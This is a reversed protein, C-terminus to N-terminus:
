GVDAGYGYGYGYYSENKDASHTVVIGAVNVQNQELQTIAKDLQSKTTKGLRVMLVAIDASRALVMADSVALVPPCDVVVVDWNQSLKGLMAEVAPTPLEHRTDGVSANSSVLVDLPAGSTPVRYWSHSTPDIEGGLLASFANVGDAGFIRGASPNLLDGDLLAVSREARAVALSFNAATVTKGENPNASIFAISLPLRADTAVEVATRLYRFAEAERRTNRRGVVLAESGKSHRPRFKPVTALIPVDPGAVSRVEDLLLLRGRFRGLAIASVLTILFGVAAGQVASPLPSSRVERATASGSIVSLQGSATNALFQREQIAVDYDALRDLASATRSELISIQDQALTGRGEALEAALRDISAIQEARQQTLSDIESSLATAFDAQRATSFAAIAVDVALEATAGSTASADIMIVPTDETNEASLGLLQGASAGLDSDVTARFDESRIRLLQAEIELLADGRTSRVAIGSATKDTLEVAGTSEFSTSGDSLFWAAVAFVCAVAM